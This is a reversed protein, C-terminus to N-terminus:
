RKISRLKFGPEEGRCRATRAADQGPLEVVLSFSDASDAPRCSLCCLAFTLLCCGRTTTM